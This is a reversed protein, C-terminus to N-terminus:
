EYGLYAYMADGNKLYRSSGTESSWRALVAPQAQVRSDGWGTQGEDGYIAWDQNVYCFAKIDYTSIAGTVKGFWDNWAGVNSVGFGAPTAEAIMLPKHHAKGFGLIPFTVEVNPLMSVAVWDVWDDGPYYDNIQGGVTDHPHWVYAVNQVGDGRLRTVIHKYAAVYASPDPFWRNVEYEVRLFVPVGGQKLYGGLADINSDYQGSTIPGAGPDRFFLAVQMVIKPYGTTWPFFDKLGDSPDGNGMTFAENYIIGSYTMFGAPTGVTAAYEKMPPTNQGIILLTKGDPPELKGLGPPRRPLVLQGGAAGASMGGMGASAGASAGGAGGGTVAGPGGSSSGGHGPAAATNGGINGPDTGGSANGRAGATSSFGSGAGAADAQEPPAGDIHGGVCATAALVVLLVVRNM